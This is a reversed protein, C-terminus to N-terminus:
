LKDWLSQLWVFFFSTGACSLYGSHSIWDDCTPSPLKRFTPTISRSGIVSSNRKRPTLCMDFGGQNGKICCLVVIRVADLHVKWLLANWPFLRWASKTANFLGLQWLHRNCYYIGVERSYQLNNMQQSCSFRFRQLDQWQSDCSGEWGSGWTCAINM